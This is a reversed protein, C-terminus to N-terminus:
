ARKRAARPRLSRYIELHKAAMRGASFQEVVRQRLAPERHKGATAALMSATLAAIDGRPIVQAPLGQLVVPIHGVDTAICPVAASMAELLALPLGESMSPLVFCDLMPYFNALDKRIGLMHVKDGIGLEAALEAMPQRMPGEGAVVLRAAPCHRLVEALAQLLGLPNKQRDLRMATGFVFHEPALDFAERALPTAEPTFQRTDIGNEILTINREPLGSAVLEARMIESVIVVREARRMMMVELKNYFQQKGGNAFHGHSTTVIPLNRGRRALLAYFLSKYDHTHVLADPEATIQATIARVTGLDLRGACPVLVADLGKAIAADFLARDGTLHNQICLLRAPVAGAQLEPLLSLLVNEAGYIGASSRIHFLTM